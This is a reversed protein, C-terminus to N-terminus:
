NRAWPILPLLFEATREPNWMRPNPHPKFEPLKFERSLDNLSYSTSLKHHGYRDMFQAVLHNVSVLEEVVTEPDVFVLYYTLHTITPTNQNSKEVVFPNSGSRQGKTQRLTSKFESKLREESPDVLLESTEGFLLESVEIFGMMGSQGVGRAYIEYIDGQNVFSIRYIRKKSM